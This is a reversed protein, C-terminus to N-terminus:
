EKILKWGYQYVWSNAYKRCATKNTIRTDWLQKTEKKNTYFWNTLWDIFEAEQIPTWEYKWYWNESHFDTSDYDAGVMECQKTLITKITDTM